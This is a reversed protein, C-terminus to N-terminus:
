SRYVIRARWNSKDTAYPRAANLPSQVLPTPFVPAGSAGAGGGRFNSWPPQSMRSYQLVIYYRAIQLDVRARMKEFLTRVHLVARVLAAHMPLSNYILVFDRFCHSVHLIALESICQLAVALAFIFFAQKTVKPKRKDLLKTTLYFYTKDNELVLTTNAYM